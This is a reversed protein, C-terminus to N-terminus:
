GNNTRNEKDLTDELRRAYWQMKRLDTVADDKHGVRSMYKIMNGKLYGKFEEPTLKAQIYDITEIGGVMYHSPHNVADTKTEKNM